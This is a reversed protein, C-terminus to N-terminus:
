QTALREPNCRKNLEWTDLRRRAITGAYLIYGGFLLYSILYFSSTMPYTQPFGLWRNISIGLLMLTCASYYIAKSWKFRSSPTFKFMKMSLITVVFLVGTLLNVLTPPAVMANNLNLVLQQLHSIM